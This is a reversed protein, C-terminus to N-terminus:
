TRVRQPDYLVDFQSLQNVPVECNHVVAYKTSYSNDDKVELNHVLGEYHVKETKLITTLKNGCFEKITKVTEEKHEKLDHEWIVLTDYGFKSFIDMRDKPNEGKHWFDGFLEIIKKQGNVNIFDPCKGSIIVQGDGVFKWDNPMIEELIKGLSIELKNPKLHRAMMQSKVYKDTKWQRSARDKCKEKFTPNNKIKMGGTKLSEESHFYYKGPRGTMKKSQKVAGSDGSAITKNKRNPTLNKCRASCFKTQGSFLPSGCTVCKGCEPHYSIVDGERLDKIPMWGYHTGENQGGFILTRVPHDDTASLDGYETTIKTIDEDVWRSMLKTVPKWIPRIKSTTHTLVLDDIKIDQIPLLGRKTWVESNEPLCITNEYIELKMVEEWRQGGEYMEKKAKSSGAISFSRLNGKQVEAWVKDAIEVDDRIEAVVWWGKDDVHTTYVQGSDPDTWKPLIRGISVDSHFVNLARYHEDEMFHKVAEKLASIAIRQGERDVVSVSAYGGIIRRSLFHPYANLASSIKEDTIGRSKIEAEIKQLIDLESM